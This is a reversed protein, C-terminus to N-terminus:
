PVTSEGFDGPRRRTAAEAAALFRQRADGREAM